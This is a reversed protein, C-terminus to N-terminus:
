CVFCLEPEWFFVFTTLFSPPFGCFTFNMLAYWDSSPPLLVLRRPRFSGSLFSSAEKLVFVFFLYGKDCECVCVCVCKRDIAVVNYRLVPACFLSVVRVGWPNVFFFFFHTDGFKKCCVCACVSFDNL